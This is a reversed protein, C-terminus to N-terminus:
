ALWDEFAGLYAPFINFDSSASRVLVVSDFGLKQLDSYTYPIKQSFRDVYNSITVDIMLLLWRSLHYNPKTMLAKSGSQCVKASTIQGSPLTLQFSLNREPLFGPAQRHVTKPIPFYAEGPSRARGGANWQNLGSKTPIEKFGKQTTYLPLVVLQGKKLELATRNEYM